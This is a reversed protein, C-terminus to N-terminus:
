RWKEIVLTYTDKLSKFMHIYLIVNVVVNFKKGAIPLLSFKFRKVFRSNQFIYQM